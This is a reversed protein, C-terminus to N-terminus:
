YELPSIVQNIISSKLLSFIVNNSLIDEDNFSSNTQETSSIASVINEETSTSAAKDCMENIEGESM